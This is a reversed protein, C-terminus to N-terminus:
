VSNHILKVIYYEFLHKYSLIYLTSYNRVNETPERRSVEALINPIDMVGPREMIAVGPDDTIAENPSM